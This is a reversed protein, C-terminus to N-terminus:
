DSYVMFDALLVELSHYGGALSFYDGNNYYRIELWDANKLNVEPIDIPSTIRSLIPSSYLHCYEDDGNKSYIEIWGELQIDSRNESEDSVAITGSLGTYKKGLYFTAYGYGNDGEARTVFLNPYEQRLFGLNRYCPTRGCNDTDNVGTM